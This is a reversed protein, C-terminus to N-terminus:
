YPLTSGAIKMWLTREYGVSVVFSRSNLCTFQGMQKKYRVGVGLIEFIM